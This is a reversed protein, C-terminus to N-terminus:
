EKIMSQITAKGNRYKLRIAGEDKTMLVHKSWRKLNKVVEDNPHGYLNKEGVSIVSLSPKLQELFIESSGSSSGHHGVKLVEIDRKWLGMDNMIVREELTGADGLFLVDFDKLTLHLILSNRNNNGYFAKEPWLCSFTMNKYALRDGAKFYHVRTGQGDLVSFLQEVLPDEAEKYIIPLIVESIPIHSAIEIIGYIHDFDSHTIFVSDIRDIGQHRIFPLVVEIGINEDKKRVDGGGDIMFTRDQYTIVTCDGQGVDLFHIYLTELDLISISVSLVMLSVLCIRAKKYPIGMVWIAIISYYAIIFYPNPAQIYLTNLPLKGIWMAIQEMYNLIWYSVGMIFTGLGMSIYSLFLGIISSFILVGVVPVVLLNGIFGYVPLSNFYYALIPWIGIQVAILLRVGAVPGKEVPLWHTKILPDIYFISLVAGFSLQFGIHTLQYPNLMLLGFAAFSVATTKDYRRNVVFQILYLGIMITARVTSVQMGTYVCYYVLFIISIVASITQNKIGRSLVKFLGYGIISVHLGSISLIHILGAKEFNDIVEEEMNKSGLILTSLLAAEDKPLLLHLRREHSKKLDDTPLSLSEEQVKKSYVDEAFVTAVVGKSKNYALADFGGENRKGRTVLVEGEAVIWVGGELDEETILQIEHHIKSGNIKISKLIYSHYKEGIRVEKINGEVKVRTGEIFYQTSAEYSQDYFFVRLFSFLCIGLLPFVHKYQIQKISDKHKYVMLMILAIGVEYYGIGLLIGVIGSLTILVLPRKM